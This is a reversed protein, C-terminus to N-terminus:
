RTIAHRGLGWSWQGGMAFSKGLKPDAAFMTIMGLPVRGAWLWEVERPEADFACTLRVRSEPEKGRDRESM